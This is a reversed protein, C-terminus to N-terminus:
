IQDHRPAIGTMTSLYRGIQVMKPCFQHRKSSNSRACDKGSLFHCLFKDEDRGDCQYHKRDDHPDPKIVNAVIRDPVVMVLVPKGHGRDILIEIGLTGSGRM